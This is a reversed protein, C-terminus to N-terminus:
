FRLHRIDCLTSHLGNFEVFMDDVGNFFENVFAFGFVLYTCIYINISCKRLMISETRMFIELHIQFVAIKELKENLNGAEVDDVRNNTLASM